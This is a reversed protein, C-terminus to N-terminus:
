RSRRRGHSRGAGIVVIPLTGSRCRSRNHVGRGGNGESGSSRARTVIPAHGGRIRRPRRGRRDRKRQEDHVHDPARGVEADRHHDLGQRREQGGANAVHDGAPEHEARERGVGAEAARVLRGLSGVATWQREANMMPVRRSSPPLPPTTSASRYMGEPTAATRIAVIGIQSRGNSATSLRRRGLPRTIPPRTAPMTPTAM